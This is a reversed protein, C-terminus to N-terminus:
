PPCTVNWIWTAIRRTVTTRSPPSTATSNAFDRDAVIVMIRHATSTECDLFLCRAPVSSQLACHSGDVSHPCPLGDGNSTGLPTPRKRPLRRLWRIFLDDGVNPDSATVDFIPSAGLRDRTTTSLFPASDPIGAPNSSASRGPHCLRVHPSRPAIFLSRRDLQSLPALFRLLLRALLSRGRAVPAARRAHGRPGSM